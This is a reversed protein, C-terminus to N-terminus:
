ISESGVDVREFVLRGLSFVTAGDALRFRFRQAAAESELRLTLTQGALIPQKFKLAEMRALRTRQGLWRLAVAMVWDVQMVGPLIQWGPFHGPWCSLDAPVRLDQEWIGSSRREALIEPALRLRSSRTLSSTGRHEAM